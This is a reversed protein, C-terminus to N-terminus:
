CSGHAEPLGGPIGQRNAVSPTGHCAGNMVERGGPRLLGGAVLRTGRPVRHYEQIEAVGGSAEGLRREVGVPGPGASDSPLHVDVAEGAVVAVAPDRSPGGQLFAPGM